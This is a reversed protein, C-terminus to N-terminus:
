DEKKNIEDRLKQLKEEHEAKGVRVIWRVGGVLVLCILSFCVAMIGLVKALPVDAQAQVPYNEAQADMTNQQQLQTSLLQTQIQDSRDIPRYSYTTRYSITKKPSPISVLLPFSFLFSLHSLTFLLVHDRHTQM